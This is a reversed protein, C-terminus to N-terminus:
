SSNKSFNIDEIKKSYLFSLTKKNEDLYKKDKIQSYYKYAQNYDKM